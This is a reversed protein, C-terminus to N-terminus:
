AGHAEDQEIVRENGVPIMGTGVNQPTNGAFQQGQAVRDPDELGRVSPAKVVQALLTAISDDLGKVCGIRLQTTHEVVRQANIEISGQSTGIDDNCVFPIVRLQQATQSLMTHPRAGAVLKEEVVRRM